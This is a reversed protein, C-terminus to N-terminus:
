GRYLRADGEVAALFLGQQDTRGLGLRRRMAEEAKKRETIDLSLIFVGEPVPEISLEFFSRSGDPLHVPKGYM